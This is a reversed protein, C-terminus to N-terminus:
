WHRRRQADAWGKQMVEHAAARWCDRDEEPLHEWALWGIQRRARHYAEYAIQGSELHEEAPRM